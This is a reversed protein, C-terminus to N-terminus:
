HRSFAFAKLAKLEGRPTKPLEMLAELAVCLPAPCLEYHVSSQRVLCLDAPDQRM